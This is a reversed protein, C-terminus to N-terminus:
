LQGGFPSITAETGAAMRSVSDEVANAESANRAAEGAVQQEAAGSEPLSAQRAAQQPNTGPLIERPFVKRQQMMADYVQQGKGFSVISVYVDSIYNQREEPLAYFEEGQMFNKFVKELSTLDDTSYVELGDGRKVGELITQAHALSRVKESVQANSARFSLEYLATDKDILGLNFMEMVKADRDQAEKRFLSGAQIFVEPDSTLDESQIERHIVGGYEDMMRIYKGETYYAKAYLVVTKAVNRVAHEIFTQTIELQSLDKKALVDLAAGSSVNVARRGLSVSHIGAVDSMEAQIRSMNDMIYGPLPSPVMMEPKGGTANYYIKEGPRDTFSNTPVGATKPILVKPNAMLEANQIVQSRAKNYFWQLDVLPEILGIGWLKTPIVTYRIIQIPFPDTLADEEKFLYTNGMIIAHRGDRWYIEFLEVRNAPVKPESPSDKKVSAPAEEIEKARDPYAKKLAEKTHYTRLAIWESEDPSTVDKEFFIDYANHASTTIRDKSPDYYTHLACTGMSLLYSFALSLTTKVDDANWHYELFLETAKAKTVDDVSPTAPMVAVAPYNVSLRSLINRYMNLLLNVTAHTNAGTRPRVLEYRGLNVDYSLWQNGSLFLLSLDWGRKSDKKSTDGDGIRSRMDSPFKKDDSM